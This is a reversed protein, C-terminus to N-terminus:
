QEEASRDVALDYLMQKQEYANILQQQTYVDNPDNRVSEEADHIFSNAQDLNRRYSAQQSPPRSAVRNLLEKDDASVVPAPNSPSTVQRAVPSNDGARPPHYLKMGAAIVLAAAVPVLWATRWRRFFEAPSPRSAASTRILGERRLQSELANWVRASPEDSAQLSPAQSSILNLDAVLGSCVPCSNLHAQHESTHGGELYDPLIREFEACNM